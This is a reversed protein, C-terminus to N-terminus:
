RDNNCSPLKGTFTGIAAGILCVLSLYPSYLALGVYTLISGIITYSAYVQAGSM